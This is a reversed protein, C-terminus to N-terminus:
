WSLSLVAFLISFVNEWQSFERLPCRGALGTLQPQLRRWLRVGVVRRMLTLKVAHATSRSSTGEWLLRSSKGYCSLTRGMAVSPGSFGWHWKPARCFHEPVFRWRRTTTWTDGHRTPTCSLLTSAQQNSWSSFETKRIMTQLSSISSM